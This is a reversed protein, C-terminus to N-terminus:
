WGTALVIRENRVRKVMWYASYNCDLVIVVAAEFEAM